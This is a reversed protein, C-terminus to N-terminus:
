IFGPTPLIMNILIMLGYSILLVVLDSQTHCESKIRFHVALLFICNTNMKFNVLKNVYLFHKIKLKAILGHDEAWLRKVHGCSAAIRM